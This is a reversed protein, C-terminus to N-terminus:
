ACRPLSTLIDVDVGKIGLLLMFWVLLGASRRPFKAGARGELSLLIPDGKGARQLWDVQSGASSEKSLGM